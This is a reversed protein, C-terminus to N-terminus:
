DQQVEDDCLGFYQWAKSFKETVNKKSAVIGDYYCKIKICYARNFIISGLYGSGAYFCFQLAPSKPRGHWRGPFCVSVGGRYASIVDTLNTEASRGESM